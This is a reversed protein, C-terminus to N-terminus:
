ITLTINQNLWVPALSIVRSGWLKRDHWFAWRLETRGANSCFPSPGVQNVRPDVWLNRNRGFIMVM